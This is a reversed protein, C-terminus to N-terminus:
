SSKKHMKSVLTGLFWFLAGEIVILGWNLLSLSVTGFIMQLPPAYIIIFQLILTSALAFIVWPNSFFRMNSQARVIQMRVLKLIVFTTLTLTQALAGSVRLGMFYAILSAASILVSICIMESAFRWSIIPVRKKRPPRQMVGPDVPDLGLAIAPMGDTVLNLWLLQVATLPIIYDGQADSFGMALGLFIIILEAINSSLLYNVFKIINDYIGRGERIAHVISAFNDDLVVMDAAEKSLDKGTIGMSVGINAEKIAPADNVGDGTVAVVGGLEKHAKVIRYKHTPSTRAFVATKLVTDRLAADDMEDIDEGGIATEESGMLGIEKGVTLATAMQDGTIMVTRVGANKCQEIAEKVERRPPDMMAVLGVFSLDQELEESFEEEKGLSRKALALVRLGSSALQNNVTLVERKKEETMAGDCRKFVEEVAGKLFLQFGDVTKVFVSMRRRESDFPVEGVVLYGEKLEKQSLGAKQAAVLLAGETFDGIVEWHGEKEQLVASNCVAGVKLAELLAPEDRPDVRKHEREFEGVPFYGTGTVDFYAGDVWLTKVVMENQTLTGTKDSCIVTACGLTEVSALRRILVKKRVMKQVGVALAITVVAPLGEPIAAVALSLATLLMDFIPMQRLLGLGFVMAVVVLCIGVLWYGLRRLRKQLPAEEARSAELLTAIKGLESEMATSCVVFRGKGSLVSTGMFGMNKRESVPLRERELVGTVKHITLSEGTLAAEEVALQTCSVFRGDAPLRDGAEVFVLDGKVLESSPISSLRGGRLVKSSPAELRRLAVMSREAKFEQVFGIVANLVIILLIAATDIWHGLSGAVVTAVILLWVIVSSFQRWILVVLATGKAEPLQNLGHEKLRRGAEEESLGSACDTQLVEALQAVDLQWWKAEEGM